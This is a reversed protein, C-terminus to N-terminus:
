IWRAGLLAGVFYGHNVTSASFFQVNFFEIQAAVTVGIGDYRMSISMSQVDLCHQTFPISNEIHEFWTVYQGDCCTRCVLDDYM